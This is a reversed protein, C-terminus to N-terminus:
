PNLEGSARGFFETAGGHPISATVDDDEDGANETINFTVDGVVVIGPGAPVVATTTPFTTLDAGFEVSLTADAESVDSRKFTLVYDAGSIVGDPLISPDATLPDGGLIYELVNEIGDFEPDDLEGDNVGETLSNDSAWTGYGSPLSLTGTAETFTWTNAGDVKEWIGSDVATETFVGLSSNVSFTGGYNVTLLSDNILLWENGGTTDAGSLDLYIDGDLNLTGAAGTAGVVSNNAGNTTPVFTLQADDLLTVIGNWITTNATYTNVGSLILNGASTKTLAADSGSIVGSLTLTDETGVVQVDFNAATTENIVIDATVTATEAVGVDLDALQLIKNAGVDGIILDGTFGSDDFGTGIRVNGTNNFTVNGVTGTLVGNLAIVDNDGGPNIQTDGEVTVTGGLNFVNDQDRKQIQSGAELFIDNLITWDGEPTGGNGRMIGGDEVRVAANDGLSTANNVFVTGEEVLWLAISEGSNDGNVVSGVNTGLPQTYDLTITIDTGTVDINGFIDIRGTGSITVDGGFQLQNTFANNLTGGTNTLTAGAELIFTNEAYAQFNNIGNLNLTSGSGVTVKNSTAGLFNNSGVALTGSNDVAVDGVFDNGVGAGITLTGAGSHTIDTSGTIKAKINVNGDGTVNIGGTEASITEANATLDEVIYDNGSTNTFTVTAPAVATQVAVTGVGLDSFTVIDGTFFLSDASDWNDSIGNDWFTPNTVGPTWTSTEAAAVTGTISTTTDAFTIRYAPSVFDTALAGGNTTYNLVTFTGLGFPSSSFDVSVSATSTLTGTDFATTTNTPDVNLISGAALDLTGTHSGEGTLTAGSAVTINGVGSGSVEVTGANATIDSAGTGSVVVTGADSIISGTHGSLDGSLTLQGAGSNTVSGSGSLPGSVTLQGAGSNAVSGGGSHAGSVTLQGAGSNAVSGSGSHAGSLTLQGDGSNTVSGTGSVAGSIDLETGSSLAVDLPDTLSVAASIVHNGSTAAVSAAGGGDFTLAFAGDITIAQASALSLDGLTVAADLTATLPATLPLADDFIAVASAGNPVSPDWNGPISWDGDGDTNWTPLGSLAITGNVVIDDVITASASGTNNQRDDFIIRFTITTLGQFAVGSLDIPGFTPTSNTFPGATDAAQDELAVYNVFGDVSTRLGFDNCGNNARAFDFTLSELNLTAPAVTTLTFEIYDGAAYATDMDATIDGGDTHVGDSMGNGEAIQFYDASAGNVYTLGTLGSGVTINSATVDADSATAAFLPDASLSAALVTTTAGAYNFDYEALVDANASSFGGLLFASLACLARKTYIPYKM